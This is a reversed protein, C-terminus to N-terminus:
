AALQPIAANVPGFSPPAVDDVHHPVQHSEAADWNLAGVKKTPAKHFM